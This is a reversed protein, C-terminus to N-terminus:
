PILKVSERDIDKCGDVRGPLQIATIENTATPWASRM